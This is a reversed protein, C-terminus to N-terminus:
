QPSVKNSPICIAPTDRLAGNENLAKAAVRCEGLAMGRNIVLYKPENGVLALILVLAYTM